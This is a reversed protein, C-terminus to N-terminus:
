WIYKDHGELFDSGIDVAKLTPIMKLEDGMM